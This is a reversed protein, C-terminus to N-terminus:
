KGKKSPLFMIFGAIVIAGFFGLVIFRNDSPDSFTSDGEADKVLELLEENDKEYIRIYAKIDEDMFESYGVFSKEGIITFPVSTSSTEYLEGVKKFVEANTKNYYTEYYMINLNYEEKISELFAKEKACHPCGDGYFMYINVKDEAKITIPLLMFLLLTFVILKILKNM